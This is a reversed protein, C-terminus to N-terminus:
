NADVYAIEEHIPINPILPKSEKGRAKELKWAEYSIGQEEYGQYEDFYEDYMIKDFYELLMRKLGIKELLHIARIM